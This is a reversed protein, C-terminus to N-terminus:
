PSISGIIRWWRSTCTLLIWLGWCRCCCRWLIVSRRWGGGAAAGAGFGARRWRRWCRWRPYVPILNVPLFIKGLYFWVAWGAAALRTWIDATRSFSGFAGRQIWIGLGAAAVALAFFLISRWVDQRTIKGRRWWAMGLLVVPMPAIATKSFIGLVFAGAALWYWRRRGSDEFTLYCLLAVGYFVMALTNKREAIWAVSEVSVPHLAFIAAALRAGPIELRRLVRWLLVAGLAHLLVNVLHYGLPHEGWWHWEFWFMTSAAPVYDVGKSVWVRWWEPQQILPNNTLLFGDDWIFGAHWVPQYALFTAVVILGAFGWGGRWLGGAMGPVQGADAVGAKGGTIENTKQKV